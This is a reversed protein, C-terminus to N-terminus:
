ILSRYVELYQHSIAEPTFDEARARCHRGMRTLLEPHKLIKQMQEQLEEPRSPEFLFGTKGEVLIEPIGGRRAGIIPIGRALAEMVVLPNPDHWLSPVIVVDVCGYFEEPPVFGLFKVRPGAFRERLNRVYDSDGTGALTLTAGKAALGTFSELLLEVGKTEVLRGIFGFRLLNESQKRVKFDGPMASNYIIKQRAQNFFGFQRHRSMVFASVAVVYDVQASLKRRVYHFPWCAPCPKVCNVMGKFMGSNPCLLYYDHITHVVPLGRRKATKWVAASFGTINHTHLLDPREADLIRGVVRNMWPNYLDILHWMFRAPWPRQPRKPFFHYLNRPTVYYVKVGNIEEVKEEPAISIVVSVNGCKQMREALLQAAIEAGGITYPHYLNSITLLKM